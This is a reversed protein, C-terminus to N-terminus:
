RELQGNVDLRGLERSTAEYLERVLSSTQIRSGSSPGEARGARIGREVGSECIKEALLRTSM